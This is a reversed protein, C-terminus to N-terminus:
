RPARTSMHGRLTPESRTFNPAERAPVAVRGDSGTVAWGLTVAGIDGFSAIFPNTATRIQAVDTASTTTSTRKHGTPNANSNWVQGAEDVWASGQQQVILGTVPPPPLGAKLPPNPSPAASQGSTLTVEAQSLVSTRNGAHLVAVYIRSGDASAALSRPMRGDIPIARIQARTAADYVKVQDEQSVSVYAKGAAFAVDSPEDGVALTARVNLTGLDVISVDDSLQNVVWAEGDSAAAVSVPEMGVPVEAIRVPVAGTLDFVTLRNDPTNIALLRNGSPTLALPHVHASEFHVFDPVDNVRSVLAHPFAALGLGLVLVAVFPVLRPMPLGRRSEAVWGPSHSPLAASSHYCGPATLGLTGLLSNVHRRSVISAGPM